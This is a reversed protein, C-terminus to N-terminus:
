VLRKIGVVPHVRERAESNRTGDRCTGDMFGFIMTRAAPM